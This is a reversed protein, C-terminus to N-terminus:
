AREPITRIAGTEIDAPIHDSLRGAPLTLAVVFGAAYVFALALFVPGMAAGYASAIASQVEPSAAHAAQPTLTEVDVVGSLAVGVGAALVAGVVSTGVTAGMQRVVNVMATLVGTESRPAANQAVVVVLSMFSGTGIGVVAMCVVPVWLPLGVPLWAMGLLGACAIVSGAIIFRRYAGTRSALWGTSLGSILMGFVTAIPVLGSVTANTRYVMQVYTPMYAVISFLGLGLVAALVTCSAITRNGLLRVPIIPRRTRFEVAVLVAFAAVAVVGVLLPLLPESHGVWTTALVLAVLGVPFLISGAVDFGGGSSATLRPIAVIALALAILGLPVNLWFVWPWGLSDTIIGGLLPGVLIAVPFAAGLVSMLKPRQRPPALTAIITQSLLQLGASSVGQVVRAAILQAIDQAFGCALSSLVFLAVSVLFLRRVGFLDGLRGIIPLLATSALTYAVVVWSMQELAGLSGAVVALSTSVVTHDIAGLFSVVFLSVLLIRLRGASLPQPTSRTM